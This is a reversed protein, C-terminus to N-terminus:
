VSINQKKKLIMLENRGAHLCDVRGSGGGVWLLERPDRGVREQERGLLLHELDFLDLFCLFDNLYPIM